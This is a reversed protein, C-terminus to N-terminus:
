RSEKEYLSVNLSKHNDDRANLWITRVFNDSPHVILVLDCKTDAPYKTRYAVKIITGDRKVEIEFPECKTYDIIRPLVIGRQLAAGQAHDSYAPVVRGTQRIQSKIQQPIGLEKHYLM